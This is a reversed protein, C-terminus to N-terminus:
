GWLLYRAASSRPSLHVARSGAVEFAWSTLLQSVRGMVVWPDVMAVVNLYRAEVIQCRAVGLQHGLMVAIQLGADRLRAVKGWGLCSRSLAAEVVVVFHLLVSEVVLNPEPVEQGYSCVEPDRGGVYSCVRRQVGVVVVAVVCNCGWQAEHSRCCSCSSIERM